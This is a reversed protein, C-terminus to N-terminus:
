REELRVVSDRRIMGAVSAEFTEGIATNVDPMARCMIASLAHRM